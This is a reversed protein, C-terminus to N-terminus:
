QNGIDVPTMDNPKPKNKTDEEKDDPVDAPPLPAPGGTQSFLIWHDNILKWKQIVKDKKVVTSPMQFYKLKLTITAQKGDESIDVRRIEFDTINLDDGMDELSEQFDAAHKRDVVAAAAKYYKWRLDHNFM